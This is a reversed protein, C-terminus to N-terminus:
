LILWIGLITFIAGIFVLAFYLFGKSSIVFLVYRIPIIVLLYIFFAILLLVIFFVALGGRNMLDNFIHFSGPSRSFDKMRRRRGVFPGDSLLYLVLFIPIYLIFAFFVLSKSWGSFLKVYYTFAWFVLASLILTFLGLMGSLFLLYNEKKDAVSFEKPLYEVFENLGIVISGFTIFYINFWLNAAFTKQHNFTQMIEIFVVIICILIITDLTRKIKFRNRHFAQFLEFPFSLNSFNNSWRLSDDEVKKFVEHISKSFVKEVLFEIFSPLLLISGVTAFIKGLEM